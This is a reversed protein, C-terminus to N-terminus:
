FELHKYVELTTDISLTFHLSTDVATSDARTTTDYFEAPDVHECSTLAPLLFPLLFFLFACARTVPSPRLNGGGIALKSIKLLKSQIM